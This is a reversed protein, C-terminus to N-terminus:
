HLVDSRGLASTAHPSEAIQINRMLLHHILQVEEHLTSREKMVRAHLGEHSVRITVVSVAVDEVVIEVQEVEGMQMLLLPLLPLVTERRDCRLMLEAEVADTEALLRRADIHQGLLEEENGDADVRVEDHHHDEAHGLGDHAVARRDSSTAIEVLEVRSRSSGDSLSSLLHFLRRLLVAVLLPWKDERRVRQGAVDGAAPRRLRQAATDLDHRAQHETEVVFEFQRDDGLVAVHLHRQLDVAVVAAGDQHQDALANLLM